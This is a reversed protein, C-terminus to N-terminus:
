ANVDTHTVTTAAQHGAGGGVERQGGGEKLPKGAVQWDFFLCLGLLRTKDSLNM